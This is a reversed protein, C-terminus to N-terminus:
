GGQLTCYNRYSTLVKLHNNVSRTLKEAIYGQPASVPDRSGIPAEPHRGFESDSGSGRGITRFM